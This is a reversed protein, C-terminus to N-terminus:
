FDCFRRYQDYVAPKDVIRQQSQVDELLAPDETEISYEIAEGM